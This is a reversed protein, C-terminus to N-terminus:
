GAPRALHRRDWRAAQQAAWVMAPPRESFVRRMIGGGASRVAHGAFLEVMDPAVVMAAPRAAPSDDSLDSLISDLGPGDLAIAARRYDAVFARVLAGYAQVVAARFHTLADVTLPGAMEVVLVGGPMMEITASASHRTIKESSM